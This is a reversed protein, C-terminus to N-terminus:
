HKRDILGVGKCTECLVQKNEVKLLPFYGVGMAVGMLVSNETDQVMRSRISYGKGRCTPCELHRSVKTDMNGCM